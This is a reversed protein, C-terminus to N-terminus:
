YDNSMTLGKLEYLKQIFKKSEAIEITGSEDVDYTEWLKDVQDQLEPDIEAVSTEKEALMKEHTALSYLMKSRFTIYGELQGKQYIKITHDKKSQLFGINLTQEGIFDDATITDKDWASFVVSSKEDM